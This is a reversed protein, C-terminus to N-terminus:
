GSTNYWPLWTLASCPAEMEMPEMPELRARVTAGQVRRAAQPCPRDPCSFVKPFGHFFFCSFWSLHQNTILNKIISAMGVDVFGLSGLPTKTGPLTANLDYIAEPLWVHNAQFIVYLHLNSITQIPFDCLYTKWQAWQWTQNSSPLELLLENGTSQSEKRTPKGGQVPLYLGYLIGRNPRPSSPYDKWFKRQIGGGSVNM